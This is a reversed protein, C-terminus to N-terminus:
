NKWSESLVKFDRAKRKYVDEFGKPDIIEREFESAKTQIAVRQSGIMLIGKGKVGKGKMASNGKIIKLENESFNYLSRVTPIDSEGLRMFLKFYANDIIAQGYREISLFDQINQTASIFRVGFGRGQKSLKTSLFNLTQPNNPDALEHVEDVYIDKKTPNVTGDKKCFQWTDKLLIDYLPKSVQEPANSIDFVVFKDFDWNTQGNFITAYSGIAYPKVYIRIQKLITKEYEDISEEISKEIVDYMDKMTCFKEPLTKSNNDLGCTKYTKRLVEELISEEDSKMDKNIWKFFIILDMIKQSLYIGVDAKDRESGNETDVIANRIHFPNVIVDSNVSFSYRKGFPFYLDGKIDFMITYDVYPINRMADCKLFFTKGSGSDALVCMHANNYIKNRYDVVVLGKSTENEGVFIGKDEM